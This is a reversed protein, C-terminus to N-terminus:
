IEVKGDDGIYIDVEGFKESIKSLIDGVENTYDDSGWFGAGHGNRTLWFNHGLSSRNM